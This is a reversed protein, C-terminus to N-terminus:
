TKLSFNHKLGLYVTGYHGTEISGGFNNQLKKLSMAFQALHTLREVM